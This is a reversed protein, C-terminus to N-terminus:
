EDIFDDERFSNSSYDDDFGIDNSIEDLLDDNLSNATYKIDELETQIPPDGIVASCIPYEEGPEPQYIDFLELFFARDSFIDFVYLLREKKHKLLDNIKISEMPIAAPGADNEMDILTLEMGKNWHEDTLFFSALLHSDYSLNEQIFNHFDLFTSNSDVEYDRLFAKEDSSIMRFKYIM